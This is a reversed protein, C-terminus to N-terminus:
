SYELQPLWDTGRGDPTLDFFNWLPWLLDIHRAHGDVPAYLMESAWFHYIGNEAKTFVNCLPLQDGDPTEAFYDTNYSNKNSSLLRLQNWGRSATFERIRAIPSKAVVALNVRQTIHPALGNLGDLFSTCMPCARQSDPGYMFSYLVLSSKGPGFLESLKVENVTSGGGMENFVYDEKAKGGHPLKRRLAAVEELKQRLDLEVKLLENRASRYADSEGPFRTKHLSDSV